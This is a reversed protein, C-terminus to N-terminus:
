NESLFSLVERNFQGSMEIALGHSGGEIMVLRANPIRSALLRSASPDVVRDRDGTLVLTPAQISGLRDLTNARAPAMLQGALGNLGIWRAYPRAFPRILTRFLFRDFTLGIIRPMVGELDISQMSEETAGSELGLAQQVSATSHLSDAGAALTSTLLLKRVREPYRIAIEQAVIGGLSYGLIHAREVGLHDLLAITDDAMVEITFSQQQTKKCRVGRNDFTIVQYHRKFAIVQLGWGEKSGGLGM